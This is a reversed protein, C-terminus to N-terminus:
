VIRMYFIIEEGRLRGSQHAEHSRVLVKGKGMQLVREFVPYMYKQKTEFLDKEGTAPKFSPNLVDSVYGTGCYFVVM